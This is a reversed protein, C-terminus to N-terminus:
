RDGLVRELEEIRTRADALDIELRGLMVLLPGLALDALAEPAPEEYGEEVIAEITALLARRGSDALHARAPLPWAAVMEATSVPQEPM